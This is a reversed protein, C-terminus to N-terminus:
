AEKVITLKPTIGFVEQFFFAKKEFNWEELTTDVTSVGKITLIKDKMKINKITIKQGHGRDMADALRLIAILKAAVIKRNRNLEGYDKETDGPAVMGHYRSVVAILEMDEKSMGFLELSRILNYSHVSHGDLSIFKGIDHLIAAVQLHLGELTMGHVKKLKNFLLLSTQEVYDCHNVNYDYARALVKANTIVDRIVEDDLRLNYLNEHIHRIIGDVLSINPVIVEKSDTKRMFANLLMMSPLIIDARERRVGYEARIEETTYNQVTKYLEKLQKKKIINTEELDLGMMHSIVSTEGGVVILHKYRVEDDAIVLGELNVNIYEELVHNYKVVTSEMAGLIERIRLAGMKVNQSSKLAGDQFTTVQISGAGIVIVIVGEDVIQDYAPLHYKVAKLTLFQEQSNDIVQVKFGTKIEIQDLIYDRNKAERIASTAMATYHKVNYDNMTKQFDGLIDCIKDVSEFSVKQTKFTDHGLVAIKRFSELERFTGVRNIEGIKMRIAHSGVDIAAILNRRM